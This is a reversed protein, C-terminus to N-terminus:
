TTKNKKLWEDLKDAATKGLKRAINETVGSVLSNLFSKTKGPEQETAHSSFVQGALNSPKLSDKVDRWDYKMAKELEARRKRLKEKEDKLHRINRIKM